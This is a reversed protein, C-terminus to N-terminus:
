ALEAKDLSLRNRDLIPKCFSSVLPHRREGCVKYCALDIYNDTNRSLAPESGLGSGRGNRDDEYSALIRDM